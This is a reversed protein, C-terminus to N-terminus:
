DKTVAPTLLAEVKEVYLAMAHDDFLPSAGMVLPENDPGVPPAEEESRIRRQLDRFENPTLPELEDAESDTGGGDEGAAAMVRERQLSRQVGGDVFWVISGCYTYSPPIRTVIDSENVFHAFRANLVKDIHEAFNPRAVLPQGFTLLGLVNWDSEVLDYACMVALAGGLSHGTIWVQKVARKALISRVQPRVRLYANYFGRHVQGHPTRIPATKMNEVFDPIDNSGRFAIVAYGNSTAVYGAMSGDEFYDADEFGTLKFEATAEAPPLYAISSARAAVLAIPWDARKQADWPHALIDGLQDGPRDSSTESPEESVTVERGPPGLVADAVGLALIILLMLGAIRSARRAPAPLKKWVSAAFALCTAVLVWILNSVIWNM